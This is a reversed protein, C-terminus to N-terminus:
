ATDNIVVVKKGQVKGNKLLELGELVNALGTLKEIELYKIGSDVALKPMLQYFRVLDEKDHAGAEFPFPGFTTAEGTLNTYIITKEVKVNERTMTKPDLLLISVVHGGNPAIADHCIKTSEGESFCDIAYEIADGTANKLKQALDSEKYDIVADAGLSKLRSERSASATTVVKFGSLKALQIAYQGVSSAGSYVLMWKNLPAPVTQPLGMRQYFVQCATFFPIPMTAAQEFSMADPIQWTLDFDQVTFDAFAGNKEDVGGRMFHARRQGKVDAPVESGTEEIVGVSDCGVIANPPSIMAVHKWDTPNLGFATNRILVQKPGPTPKSKEQVAATHNEQAVVARM